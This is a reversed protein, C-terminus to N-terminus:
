NGWQVYVKGLLGQIGEAKEVKEVFKLVCAPESNTYFTIVDDKKIKLYKNLYMAKLTDNKIRDYKRKSVTVRVKKRPEFRVTNDNYKERKIGFM